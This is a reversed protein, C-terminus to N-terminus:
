RQEVGADRRDDAILLHGELDHDILQLFEGNQFICVVEYSGGRNSGFLSLCGVNRQM